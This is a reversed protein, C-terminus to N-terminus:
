FFNFEIGASLEKINNQFSLGRTKRRIEDSDADKAEIKSQIYSFRWTHRPTKNWKYLLGLAQSNPKVYTTSGVDGIFNSGGVFIGLENIQAQSTTFCFFLLLLLIVKNM